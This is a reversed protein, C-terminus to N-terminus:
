IKKLFVEGFFIWFFGGHIEPVRSNACHSAPQDTHSAAVLGQNGGFRGRWKSWCTPLHNQLEWAKPLLSIELELASLIRLSLEERWFNSGVSWLFWITNCCCAYNVICSLEDNEPECFIGVCISWSPKMFTEHLNWSTKGFTAHHPASCMVLLSWWPGWSALQFAGAWLASRSWRGPALRRWADVLFRIKRSQPLSICLLYRFVDYISIFLIIM